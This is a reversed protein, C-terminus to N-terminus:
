EEIEKIRHEMMKEGDFVYRAEFKRRELMWPFWTHDDEWMEEFPVKDVSFWLPIAEDTETPIGSFRAARFVHGRISLGDEFQFYLRGCFEPDHAQIRLEEEVERLACELPTEGPEIRGGPANIKGAGFGTKKRILLVEGEDVVFLLTADVEPEWNKWDIEELTM